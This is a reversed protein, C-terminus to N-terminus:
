AVMCSLEVKIRGGSDTSLCISMQQRIRQECIQCLNHACPMILLVDTPFKRKRKVRTIRQRVDRRQDALRNQVSTAHREKSLLVGATEDSLVQETCINCAERYQSAHRRNQRQPMCIRCAEMVRERESLDCGRLDTLPEDALAQLLYIEPITDEIRRRLYGGRQMHISTYVQSGHRSEETGDQTSGSTVRGARNTSSAQQSKHPAVAM